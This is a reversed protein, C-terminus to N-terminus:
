RVSIIRAMQGLIVSEWLVLVELRAVVSWQLTDTVLGPQLHAGQGVLLHHQCEPAVLIGAELVEPLHGLVLMGGLILLQVVNVIDAHGLVLMSEKTRHLGSHPGTESGDAVVSIDVARGLLVNVAIDPVLLNGLIFGM